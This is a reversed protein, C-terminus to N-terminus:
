NRTCGIEWCTRISFPAMPLRFSGEAKQLQEATAHLEIAPSPAALVLGAVLAAALAAALTGAFLQRLHSWDFPNSSQTQRLDTAGTRRRDVHRGFSRNPGFTFRPAHSRRSSIKGRDRNCAWVLMVIRTKVNFWGSLITFILSVASAVVNNRVVPQAVFLGGLGVSLEDAALLVEM